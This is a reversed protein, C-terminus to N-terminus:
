YDETEKFSLWNVGITKTLTELSDRMKDLAQEAIKKDGIMGAAYVVKLLRQNKWV